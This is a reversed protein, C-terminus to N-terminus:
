ILGLESGLSRWASDNRLLNLGRSCLVRVNATTMNLEASITAYDVGQIHRMWVVSLQLKARPHLRLTREFCQRVRRRFESDAAYQEPGNWAPIDQIEARMSWEVRISRRWQRIVNRLQQIAVALLAGPVRIGARGDTGLPEVLRCYLEIIAQNTVENREDAALDKAYRWSMDHLYRFLEEFGRQQRDDGELGACAQYLAQTYARIVAWGVDEAADEGLLDDARRALEEITLLRWGRQSLIGVVSARLKARREAIDWEHQVM